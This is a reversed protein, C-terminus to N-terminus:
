IRMWHLRQTQAQKALSLSTALRRRNGVGLQSLQDTIGIAFLGIFWFSM